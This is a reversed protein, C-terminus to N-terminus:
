SNAANLSAIKMHKYFLYCSFLLNLGLYLSGFGILKLADSNITEFESFESLLALVMYLNMLVLLVGLVMGLINNQTVILFVTIALLGIAFWNLLTGTLSWYYLISILLYLEPINTKLTKM